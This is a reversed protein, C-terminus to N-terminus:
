ALGEAQLQRSVCDHLLRRVRELGRFLTRRSMALHSMIEEAPRGQDYRFTVLQRDAASLKRLCGDLAALRADLHAEHRGREESLLELVDDSL